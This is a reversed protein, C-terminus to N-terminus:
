LREKRLMKESAYRYAFLAVFFFLILLMAYLMLQTVMKSEREVLQDVVAIL